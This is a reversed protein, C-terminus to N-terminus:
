RRACRTTRCWSWRATTCSRRRSSRIIAGQRARALLRRPHVGAGARRRQPPRFCTSRRARATATACTSSRAIGSRAGAASAEAWRAFIQPHEPIRARNNYQLTSGPPISDLSMPNEMGGTLAAPTRRNVSLARLGAGALTAALIRAEKRPRLEAPLADRECHSPRSNSGGRRWWDGCPRVMDPGKDQQRSRSNLRPSRRDARGPQLRHTRRRHSRGGM